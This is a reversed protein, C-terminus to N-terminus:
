LWRVGIVLWSGGTVTHIRSFNQLFQFTTKLAQQVGAKIAIGAARPLRQHNLRLDEDPQVQWLRVLRRLRQLLWGAMGTAPNGFLLMPAGGLKRRSGRYDTSPRSHELFTALVVQPDCNVMRVSCHSGLPWEYRRVGHECVIASVM